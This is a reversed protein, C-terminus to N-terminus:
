FVSSAFRVDQTDKNGLFEGADSGTVTQRDQGGGMIRYNHLDHKTSSQSEPRNKKRSFDLSSVGFSRIASSTSVSTVRRILFTIACRFTCGLESEKQVLVVDMVPDPLLIPNSVATLAGAM